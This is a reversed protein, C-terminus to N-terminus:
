MRINMFGRWHSRSVTTLAEMVARREVENYGNMLDKKHIEQGPAADMQATAAMSAITMGGQLGIGM